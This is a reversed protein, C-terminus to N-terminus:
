MKYTLGAHVRRGRADFQTLDTGQFDKVNPLDADFLDIVGVSMLLTTDNWDYEYSYRLDVTHYPGLKRQLRLSTPANDEYEGVYRVNANLTHAGKIWSAALAGKFDPMSRSLRREPDRNSFGAADFDPQGVPFDKVEFKNVWSFESGLVVM